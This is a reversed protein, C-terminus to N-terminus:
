VGGRPRRRASAAAALLVVVALSSAVPAQKAAVEGAQPAPAAAPADDKAFLGLGTSQRLITGWADRSDDGKPAPGTGNAYAAYKRACKDVCGDAFAVHVRGTADIAMDAFDLLNRCPFTGGQNWIAGVQVPDGTLREVAWSAGADFSEALYYHWVNRDSLPTCSDFPRHGRPDTTALFTVAVREDDGAAVDPFSGFKLPDGTLPDAYLPALDLWTAPTTGLTTGGLTEWSKGQDKSLAVHIGNEAAQALWLWGGKSFAASPDFGNGAKSDPMVRSDWTLGGDATFAFGVKDGCRGNPAVAFGNPAVKVHGHLGACAGLVQVPPLWTFGGDPSAACADRALQACYYVARSGEKALPHGPPWPGAGLSQHDFQAGTCMNRSPLWTKGDDDSIGMVSCPGALGGAYLRNAVPDAVLLPDVNALSFPPTADSWEVAAPEGDPRDTFVARYTATFAQFFAHNSNWPIGISPEGASNAQEMSAPLPYADFRPAGPQGFAPSPHDPWPQAAAPALLLLAATLPLLRPLSSPPQAM